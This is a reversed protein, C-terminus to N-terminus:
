FYTRLFLTYRSSEPVNFGSMLHDIQLGAQYPFAIPHEELRSLNGYTLQAGLRTEKTMDQQSHGGLFTQTTSEHWLFLGYGFTEFEQEWRVSGTGANPPDLLVHSATPTNVYTDYALDFTFRLDLRARNVSLLYHTYHFLGTLAQYPVRTALTTRGAYDMQQPGGPTAVGWGLVIGDTDTFLPRHLSTWRLNGLGSVTRRKLLDAAGGAAPDGAAAGLSSEQRIVRYPVSLNLNWTDSIGYGILTETATVHRVVDGSLRGALGPQQALYDVLPRRQGDTAIADRQTEQTVAARLLWVGGPVIDDEAARAPPAGWALAALLAALAAAWVRAGSRGASHGALGATQAALGATQAAWQRGAGQTVVHAM